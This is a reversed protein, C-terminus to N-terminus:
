TCELMVEEAEIGSMNSDEDSNEDDSYEDEDDSDDYDEDLLKSDDATKQLVKVKKKKESIKSTSALISDQVENEMKIEEEKTKVESKKIDAAPLRVLHM